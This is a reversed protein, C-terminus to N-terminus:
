TNLGHPDHSSSWGAWRPPQSWYGCWPIPKSLIPLNDFGIPRNHNHTMGLIYYILGKLGWKHSNYWSDWTWGRKQTLLFIHHTWHRNFPIVFPGFTLGWLPGSVPSMTLLDSGICIYFVNSEALGLLSMTFIILICKRPEM